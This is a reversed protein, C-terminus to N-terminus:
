PGASADWLDVEYSLDFPLLFDGSSGPATTFFPRNNSVRESSISPSTSITPFQAARNFRIMDRAQRFRAEAVKLDQNGVTLQQELTNLQPDGFMEWWNGRITQDGPQATKWGDGEKFSAPPAEKFAAPVPATPTKYKPGVMCGNLLLALAVPITLTKKM